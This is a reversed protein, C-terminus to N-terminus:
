IDVVKGRIVRCAHPEIMYSLLESKTGLDEHSWCDHLSLGKHQASTLGIDWFQYSVEAKVDGFNVMCFAYDGNSLPKVFTMAQEPNNWQPICYAGRCEIDQNIAIVDRNSLIERISDSMSRIDCGIM